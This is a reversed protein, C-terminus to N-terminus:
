NLHNGNNWKEERQRLLHQRNLDEMRKWSNQNFDTNNYAAQRQQNQEHPPEYFQQGYGQNNFSKPRYEPGNYRPRQNLAAGDQNNLRRQVERFNGRNQSSKPAGRALQNLRTYCKEISHGKRGCFMCFNSMPVRNNFFCQDTNHNTYQCIQCFKAQRNGSQMQPDHQNYPSPRNGRRMFDNQPNYNGPSRSRNGNNNMPQYSNQRYVEPMRGNQIAFLETEEEFKVEKKEITPKSNRLAYLAELDLAQGYAAAYNDHEATMIDLYMQDSQLGTTFCDLLIQSKIASEETGYCRDALDNIRTVFDTVTENDQQRASMLKARWESKSNSGEIARTIKECCSEFDIKHSRDLNLTEVKSQCTQDLYSILVDMKKAEPIRSATAFHQFNKLWRKFNGGHKFIDPKRLPIDIKKSGDWRDIIESKGKLLGEKYALEVKSANGRAALDFEQNLKDIGQEAANKRQELDQKEEEMEIVLQKLKDNKKAADQVTEKMKEGYDKLDSNKSQADKLQSKLDAIQKKLEQDGM